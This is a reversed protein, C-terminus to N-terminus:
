ARARNATPSSIARMLFPSVRDVVAQTDVTKGGSRADMVIWACTGLLIQSLRHPDIWDGAWDDVIRGLVDGFVDIVPTLRSNYFIRTRSPDVFLGAVLLPTVRLMTEVLDHFSARMAQEGGTEDAQREVRAVLATLHAEIPELVAAEFLADKSDFYRYLVGEAVGAADAIDKTRLSTLGSELFLTQAVTIIQARRERAPLRNRADARGV